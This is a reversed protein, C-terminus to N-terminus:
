KRVVMSRAIKDHWGQRRPDTLISLYGWLLPCTFIAAGVFLMPQPAIGATSLFMLPVMPPLYAIMRAICQFLSLKGGTAADVVKIGLIMKGPTASKWKWLIVLLTLPVLYQFVVSFWVPLEPPPVPTTVGRGAQEMADRFWVGLKERFMVITISTIVFMWLVTDIVHALLRMGFDAPVPM